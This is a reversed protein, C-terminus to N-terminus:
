PNQPPNGPGGGGHPLIVCQCSGAEWVICCCMMGRNECCVVAGDNFPCTLNPAAEWETLAHGLAETLASDDPTADKATSMSMDEATTPDDVACSAWVMLMALCMMLVAVSKKM